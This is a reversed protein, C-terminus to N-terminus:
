RALSKSPDDSKDLLGEAQLTPHPSDGAAPTPTPTPEEDADQMAVDESSRLKAQVDSMDEDDSEETAARGGALGPTAHEETTGDNESMTNLVLGGSNVANALLGSLGGQGAGAGGRGAAGGRGRGRGAGGVAGAVGGKQAQRYPDPISAPTNYGVGRSVRDAVWDYWEAKTRGRLLAVVLITMNDCGVGGWDSDPALCRDILKECIVPLEVRDAIARRVFDISQQSTVVDWIGDCAVIVFEDEDTPEHVTIDPDATVIQQEAPLSHSQKFEFDGIARSLALNGNVRGFEVFGGAAVIRSNEGKNVPKHDFSLPKAEGGVSMVSRSDGANACIIKNDPTILTSVATCGSPDHAFDPNARLDEDTALYARKLAEEFKGAKFQDTARLRHHLTDGTYRAVTSGGHGDYVAFFAIEDKASSGQLHMETAHADEMTLRWGQMESIGYALRRDAEGEASTKDTVPESLTQGM